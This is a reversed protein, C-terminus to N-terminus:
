KRKVKVKISGDHLHKKILEAALKSDKKEKKM